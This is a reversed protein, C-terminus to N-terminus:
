RPGRYDDFTVGFPDFASRIAALDDIDVIALDAKRARDLATARLFDFLDRRDPEEWAVIREYFYRGLRTADDGLWRQRLRPIQLAHFRAMLERRLDPQLYAQVVQFPLFYRPRVDCSLFQDDADRELFFHRAKPFLQVFFGIRLSSRSSVIFVDELPSRTVLSKLYPGPDNQADFPHFAFRARYGEVGIGSRSIHAAYERWYGGSLDPHRLGNRYRRAAAPEAREVAASPLTALQENLPEYLCHFRGTARFRSFLWTARSRWITHVFVVQREEHIVPRESSEIGRYQVDM